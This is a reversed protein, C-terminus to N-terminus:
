ATLQVVDFGNVKTCKGVITPNEKGQLIEETKYVNNFKDIYYVIGNIEEALVEFKKTQGHEGDAHVQGNPTGKAHTGCYECGDKRRRTCQEGTARKASCRNMAPVSNKVRKRKNMDDKDLALKEYEYIYELLENIKPKESEAFELENIKKRLADKYSVAWDAIKKNLLAMKHPKAKAKQFYWDANDVASIDPQWEIDIPQNLYIDFLSIRKNPEPLQAKPNAHHTTLPAM